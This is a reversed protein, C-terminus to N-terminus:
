SLVMLLRQGDTDEVSFVYINIVEKIRKKPYLPHISTFGEKIHTMYMNKM